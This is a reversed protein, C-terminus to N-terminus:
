VARVDFGCAPCNLRDDEFSMGCYICRYTPEGSLRSRLQTTISM